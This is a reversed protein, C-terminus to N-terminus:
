SVKPRGNTTGNLGIIVRICPNSGSNQERKVVHGVQIRREKKKKKKLKGKTGERGWGQELGM